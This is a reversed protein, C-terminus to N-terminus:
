DFTLIDPFFIGSVQAFAHEGIEAVWPCIFMIGLARDAGPKGQDLRRLESSRRSV